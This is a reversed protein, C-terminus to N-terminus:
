LRFELKALSAKNGIMYKAVYGPGIGLERLQPARIGTDLLAVISMGKLCDIGLERIVATAEAPAAVCAELLKATTLGLLESADAGALALADRGDKLFSAVVDRAGWAAVAEAAMTSDVLHLADFQLQRAGAAEACGIEKLRLFGVSAATLNVATVNKRVLLDYTIKEDPISLAEEAPLLTNHFLALRQRTTLASSKTRRMM